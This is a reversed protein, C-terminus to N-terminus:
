STIRRTGESTGGGGDDDGGLHTPFHCNEQNVNKEGNPGLVSIQARYQRSIAWFQTARRKPKPLFLARRVIIRSIELFIAWIEHVYRWFSLFISFEFISIPGEPYRRDIRRASATHVFSAPAYTLEPFPWIYRFLNFFDSFIQFDYKVTNKSGESRDAWAPIIM